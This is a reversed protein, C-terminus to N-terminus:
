SQEKIRTRRSPDILKRFDELDRGRPHHLWQELQELVAHADEDQRMTAIAESAEVHELSLRKRWYAVVMRELEARDGADLLDDQAARVAAQLREELSAVCQGAEKEKRRRRRGALLIALLGVAWLLGCATLLSRYGGVSPLRVPSMANPEVQGPPLVSQVEFVLPPVGSMSSGDQRQLYDRLDHTGPELAYFALDYRFADGHPYAAEVRVVVPAHRDTLPKAELVTGPLVLQEIRAPV